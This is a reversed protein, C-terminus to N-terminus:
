KTFKMELLENFVDIKTQDKSRPLLTFKNIRLFKYGYSELELQREIDYELYEQSFNHATVMDPNKTHYEVGDYELILSREKGSESLTLLFDVRYKPIYRHLTEEIYQGIPFQAIIKLKDRNKKFFESNTIMIYLDREAPSGFIAEDAVFNDVASERLQKYIKLADGLRTDSYEELPMSHVFVMTDKARSFGVNLRQMKLNRISDAAGGITPYITTLRANGIKKDEVFSYYVIDREEGQVDGVFWIILKHEKELTHYNDLEKRLVEEMRYKQERFSTIIGITGKFGNSILTQIDNKIAEMEDLNVNNGANGQTQVKIFKLVESIPKTRIRNVVLPIQSPKYFIENSYHIIEPFSRFHTDLSASYNKLAKAFNLTSTRVSFTKLWEKTGGEPTYVPELVEDDDEEAEASVDSVLKQKELEGIVAHFDEQYNDIIEKFYQGSYSANVNMAGVAGYQLEDGFVVVQKARLILSISEAISVQSAEDIVLVDIVNEEMPFYKSILDPEAIICPINELVVKIQSEDLRKGSKFTVLIREIDTAHNQLNKIRQDNVQDLTKQTTEYYAAVLQQSPLDNVSHRSLQISLRIYDLLDKSSANEVFFVSLSRLNGLDVGAPKVLDGFCEKITQLSAITSESTKQIVKNAAMLFEYVDKVDAVEVGLCEMLSVLQETKDRLAERQDIAKLGLALDKLTLSQRTKSSITEISKLVGEFELDNLKAFTTELATLHKKKNLLCLFRLKLKGKDFVLSKEDLSKSLNVLIAKFEQRIEASVKPSKKIQAINIGARNLENCASTHHALSERHGFLAALQDCSIARKNIQAIEQVCGRIAELDLIRDKSPKVLQVDKALFGQERLSAELQQHRLLDKMYNQYSDGGQWCEKVQEDIKSKWTELDKHIAGANFDHARKTSAAIVPNSLTNEFTNVGSNDDSIRMLAPKARPHLKRFKDTLMRDLVDLAAKKHSTIVLSKKHQNAWYTIAAITHSKGTGPPGDVVIFKNKANDLATLIKKQSKSLNLPITAIFADTSKKPYRERYVKEVDDSTSVTNGSVYSDVFDLFKGGQGADIRTILESYDLLKRNEGQVIQLGVRFNIRPRKSAVLSKFGYQLLFPDFFDYHTQLYKEVGELYNKAEASRAARPTTLVRDFGFSNIAPTNIFVVGRNGSLKIGGDKDQIDIEVLFLPYKNSPNGEPDESYIEHFFFYSNGMGIYPTFKKIVSYLDYMILDWSDNRLKEEVAKSFGKEDVTHRACLQFSDFIAQEIMNPNFTTGPVAATAIERLLEAKKEAQLKLLIDRAVFRFALNFQRLGDLLIRKKLEDDLGGGESTQDQPWQKRADEVFTKIRDLNFKEKLQELLLAKFKVEDLAVAYEGRKITLNFPQGKRLLELIRKQFDPFVSLEATLPDDTWVYDIKKDFRFRTEAYTAFYNLISKAFKKM